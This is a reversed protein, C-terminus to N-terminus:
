RRQGPLGPLISISGRILNASDAPYTAFPACKQELMAALDNVPPFRSSLAVVLMTYFQKGSTIAACHAYM